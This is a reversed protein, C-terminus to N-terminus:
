TVDWRAQLDVVEDDPVAVSVHMHVMELRRGGPPLRRVPATAERRELGRDDRARTPSVNPVAMHSPEVM